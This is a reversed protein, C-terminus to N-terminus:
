LSSPGESAAFSGAFTEHSFSYNTMKLLTLSGSIGKTNQQVRGGAKSDTSAFMIEWVGFREIQIKVILGHM